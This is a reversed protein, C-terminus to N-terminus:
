GRSDKWKLCNECIMSKPAKEPIQNYITIGCITFHLNEHRKLHWKYGTGTQYGMFMEEDTRNVPEKTTVEDKVPNDDGMQLWGIRHDVLWLVMELEKDTMRVTADNIEELADDVRQLNSMLENM